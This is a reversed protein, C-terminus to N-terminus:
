WAAAYVGSLNAGGAVRKVQVAKNRILVDDDTLVGGAPLREWTTGGDISYFGPAGGENVIRIHRFVMTDDAALVEVAADAVTAKASVGSTTKRSFEPM